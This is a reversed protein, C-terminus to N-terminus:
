TDSCICIDSCLGNKEHDEDLLYPVCTMGHDLFYHFSLYQRSKIQIGHM